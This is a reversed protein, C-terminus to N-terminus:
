VKGGWYKFYCPTSLLYPIFSLLISVHMRPAPAFRVGECDEIIPRSGVALYVDLGRCEHLRVQRSQVVLISDEVGTVHAAGAVQGAIVLSNKINKLHLGAFPTGSSTPVSMDVICSKLSTVLGSSTARSATTPLIIHLGTHSSLTISSAQSFSPKRIGKKGVAASMELNYDKM